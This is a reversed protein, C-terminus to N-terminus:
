DEHNQEDEKRRHQALHCARCLVQGNEIQFFLPDEEIAKQNLGHKSVFSYISVRHHVTIQTKKHCLECCENSHKICEKHWQLYRATSRLKRTFRGYESIEPIDATMRGFFGNALYCIRSCYLRGHYSVRSQYAKFKQGCICEIEVQPSRRKYCEASCYQGPHSTRKWVPRKFERNCIPCILRDEPAKKDQNRCVTSCYKASKSRYDKVRFNKGCYKCELEVM